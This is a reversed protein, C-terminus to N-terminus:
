SLKFVPRCKNLTPTKAWYDINVHTNIIQLNITIRPLFSFQELNESLGTLIYLPLPDQYHVKIVHPLSKTAMQKRIHFMCRVQVKYTTGKMISRSPNSQTSNFYNILILHRFPFLFHNVTVKFYTVLYETWILHRLHNPLINSRFICHVNM